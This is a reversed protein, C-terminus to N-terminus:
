LKGLSINFFVDFSQMVPGEYPSGVPWQHIRKDFLLSSYIMEM